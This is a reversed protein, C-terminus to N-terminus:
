EYFFIIRFEHFSFAAKVKEIPKIEIKDIIRNESIYIWSVLLNNSFM